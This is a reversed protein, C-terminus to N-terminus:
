GAHGTMKGFCDPCSPVGWSVFDAFPGREGCEGIVGDENTPKATHTLGTALDIVLMDAM